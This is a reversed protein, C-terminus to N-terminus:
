HTLKLNNSEHEADYNVLEKKKFFILTHIHTQANLPHILILNSVKHYFEPRCAQYCTDKNGSCRQIRVKSIKKGLHWFNEWQQWFDWYNKLFFGTKLKKKNLLFCFVTPSCKLNDIM